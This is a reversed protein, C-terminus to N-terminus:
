TGAVGRWATSNIYCTTFCHCLLPKTRLGAFMHIIIHTHMCLRDYINIDAWHEQSKLPGNGLYRVSFIYQVTRLM